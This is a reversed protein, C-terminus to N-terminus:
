ILSMTGDRGARQEFRHLFSLLRTYLQHELADVKCDLEHRASGLLLASAARRLFFLTLIAGASM